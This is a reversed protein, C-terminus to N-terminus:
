GADLRSRLTEDIMGSFIWEFKERNETSELSRISFTPLGNLRKDLDVGQIKIIESWIRERAEEQDFPEKMFRFQVRVKGDTTLSFTWQVDDPYRLDLQMWMQPHKASSEIHLRDFSALRREGRKLTEHKRLAWNILEDAIQACVSGSRAGLEEVFTEPDVVRGHEEPIVNFDAILPAHDSLKGFVEHQIRIRTCHEAMEPTVYLWDLQTGPNGGYTQLHCCDKEACPCGPIPDPRVPAVRALNM